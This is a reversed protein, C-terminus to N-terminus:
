RRRREAKTTTLCEWRAQGEPSDWRVFDIKTYEPYSQWRTGLLWVHQWHGNVPGILWVDKRAPSLCDILPGPREGRHWKHNAAAVYVMFDVRSLQPLAGLEAMLEPDVSNNADHVVLGFPREGFRFHRRVWDPALAVNHGTAIEISPPLPMGRLRAEEIRRSLDLSYREQADIFAVAWQNLWPSDHVARLFQLPTGRLLIRSFRNGNDAEWCYGGPGSNTDLLMCREGWKQAIRHCIGVQRRFIQYAWEVKQDTGDSCGVLDGNKIIPWQGDAIYRDVLPQKVGPRRRRQVARQRLAEDIPMLTGDPALAYDPLDFDLPAEFRIM